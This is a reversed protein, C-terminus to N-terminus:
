CNTMSLLACDCFSESFYMKSGSPVRGSPLRTTRKQVAHDVGSEATSSSIFSMASSHYKLPLSLRSGINTLAFCLGWRSFDRLRRVRRERESKAPAQFPSLGGPAQVCEADCEARKRRLPKCPQPVSRSNIRFRLSGGNRFLHRRM